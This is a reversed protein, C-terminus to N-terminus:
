HEDDETDEWSLELLGAAWLIAILCVAFTAALGIVTFINM